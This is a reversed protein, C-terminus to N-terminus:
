NLFGREKSWKVLDVFWGEIKRGFVRLVGPSKFIHYYCKRDDPRLSYIVGRIYGADRGQKKTKRM